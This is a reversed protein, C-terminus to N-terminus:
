RGGTGSTARPLSRTPPTSESRVASAQPSVSPSPEFSSKRTPRRRIVTPRTRSFFSTTSRLTDQLSRTGTAGEGSRSGSALTRSSFGPEILTPKLSRESATSSSAISAFFRDSPRLSGQGAPPQASKTSSRRAPRLTGHPPVVPGLKSPDSSAILEVFNDSAFPSCRTTEAARLASSPLTLTCSPEPFTRRSSRAPACSASPSKFPSPTMSSAELMSVSFGLSSATTTDLAPGSPLSRSFNRTAMGPPTRASPIQGSSPAPIAGMATAVPSPKPEHASAAREALAGPM